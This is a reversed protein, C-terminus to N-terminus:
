CVLFERSSNPVVEWGFTIWRETHWPQGKRQALRCVEVIDGPLNKERTINSVAKSDSPYCTDYRLMDIPFRQGTVSRFTTAQFVMEREGMFRTPSDLRIGVNLSTLRCEEV